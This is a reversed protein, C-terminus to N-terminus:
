HLHLNFEAALRNSFNFNFAELAESLHIYWSRGSTFQSPLFIRNMEDEVSKRVGLARWIDLYKTCNCLFLFHCGISHCWNQAQTKFVINTLELKLCRLGLGLGGETVACQYSSFLTKTNPTCVCLSTVQKTLNKKEKKQTKTSNTNNFFSFFLVRIFIKTRVSKKKNNNCHKHYLFATM